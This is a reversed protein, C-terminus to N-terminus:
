TFDISVDIDGFFKRKNALSNTTNKGGGQEMIEEEWFTKRPVLRVHKDATVLHKLKAALKETCNV